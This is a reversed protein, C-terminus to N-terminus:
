KLFSFFGGFESTFVLVIGPMDAGARQLASGALCLMRQEGAMGQVGSAKVVAWVPQLAGFVDGKAM